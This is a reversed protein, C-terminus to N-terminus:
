GIRIYHLTTGTSTITGRNATDNIALIRIVKSAAAVTVTEMIPVTCPASAVGSARRVTGIDLTDTANHLTFRVSDAAGSADPTYQVQAILLYTGATPLTLDADTTGFDIRAWSTTLTYNSGAGVINNTLAVVGYNADGYAKTVFDQAGVPDDGSATGSFAANGGLFRYGGAFSFTLENVAASAINGVTADKWVVAGAHNVQAGDGIAISADAGGFTTGGSIAISSTAGATGSGLVMSYDGTADADIFGMVISYYGSAENSQGCVVCSLDGSATNNQGGLVSSMIGSAVNGEGGGVFSRSGSASHYRGGGVTAYEGSAISAHGGGITAKDGSAVQTANERTQQWDVAYQGRVNGGASTGDPIDTMLAGTGKPKVIADCDAGAIDSPRWTVYERGGYTGYDSTWNAFNVYRSSLYAKTVFDQDGSPNAGSVRGAFAANGGQFDYGASWRQTMKGLVPAPVASIGDALVMGGQGRSPVVVHVATDITTPLGVLEFTPNPSGPDNDEYPTDQLYVGITGGAHDFEVYAGANATEVDAQSAQQTYTTYPGEIVASGGSHVVRFGYPAGANLGWLGGAYQLAGEVYNVRYRGAVFPGSFYSVANSTIDPVVDAVPVWPDNVTSSGESRPTWSDKLVASVTGQAERWYIM